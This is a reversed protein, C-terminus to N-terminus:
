RQASDANEPVIQARITFVAPDSADVTVQVWHVDPSGFSELRTFNTIIHRQRGDVLPKDTHFHHTDGHILLVPRGFATVERELAALFTDFGTPGPTGQPAPAGASSLYAARRNAAWTVEFGPNAQTVLVIAAANAARATSFTETMWALDAAQRAVHEADMRPTRGLNDNHGVMHLTAFMVGEHVWRANEPYAPDSQRELHIRRQGLSDRTAFFVERMRALRELPDAQAGKAPYCDAWDNDGPTVVLPHQSTDFLARRAQLTEDSCPRAGDRWSRPGAQLDGVHVVFALDHRDMDALMPGVQAEEAATYPVDGIVGFDFRQAAASGAVFCAVLLIPALRTRM